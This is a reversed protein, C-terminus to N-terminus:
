RLVKLNHKCFGTASATHLLASLSVRVTVGLLPGPDDQEKWQSSFHSQPLETFEAKDRCGLTCERKKFEYM